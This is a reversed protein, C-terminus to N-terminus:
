PAIILSCNHGPIVPLTSVLRGIIGRGEGGGWGWGEEKEGEGERFGCLCLLPLLMDYIAEQM